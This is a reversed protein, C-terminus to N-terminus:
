CLKEHHLKIQIFAKSWPFGTVRKAGAGPRTLPSPVRLIVGELEQLELYKRCRWLEIPFEQSSNNRDFQITIIHDMGINPLVLVAPNFHIIKFLYELVPAGSGCVKM